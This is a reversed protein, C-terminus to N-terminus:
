RESVLQEERSGFLGQPRSTMLVMLGVGVLVLKIQQADTADISDPLWGNLQLDSMLGDFFFFLFQFIIAGVVPGWITGAGGLIVIVYLFFTVQPRFGDPTVSQQEIVLLMGAAGGLAGGIMLSQLKAGFVNKGVSRVADEDERVARLVRGWPSRVLRRVFLAALIALTWGVLMVWLQRGSFAFNGWGYRADVTFPNLDFFDDAFRQFGFVGNTLPEAASSRVILRLIEAASITVIALYDARLRLTPAGLAIGLAVSALVGVILGLWFPGGADVTIGLGYAGVLMFAVHGFNLLGTYGFQLNLGIAALAYAAAVPGISAVAADTFIEVWDM